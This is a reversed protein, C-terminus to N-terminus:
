QPERHRERTQSRLVSPQAREAGYCPGFGSQLSSIFHPFPVSSVSSSVSNRVRLFPKFCVCRSSFSLFLTNLSCDVGLFVSFRVERFSRHYKQWCVGLFLVSLSRLSFPFPMKRFPLVIQIQGDCRRGPFLWLDQMAKAALFHPGPSLHLAAPGPSKREWGLAPELQTQSAQGWLVRPNQFCSCFHKQVQIAPVVLM